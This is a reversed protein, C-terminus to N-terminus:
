TAISFREKNSHFCFFDSLPDFNRDIKVKLYEHLEVELEAVDDMIEDYEPDDNREPIAFGTKLAADIDFAKKFKAIDESMDEFTGGNENTQTLMRMLSSTCQKFIDPLDMVSDFANLLAAFDRIKNKGYTPTEYLIARSNPHDKMNSNGFQHIQALSRQLDVNLSSLLARSGQLMETNEYLEKVAEQRGRIEDVDSTPSCLYEMLLRKGFQTCCYDMKMYLSTEKGFINLNSLTINDLVMSKQRYDKGIKGDLGEFRQDPPIYRKFSALALVQKMLLNRDLYWLCGGLAKLALACDESPKLHEEQMEKIVDPWDKSDNYFTESLYKLTRVGNWLQKENTLPEKLANIAKIIKETHPAKVNREHLVLVPTYHSLLTLLRSCQQDDDFEGLTFDGISTDVFCIGYRSTTSTKKTEAITLLFNPDSSTTMRQQGNSFIQTGRDTIQCIERKMVKSFKGTIGERKCRAEMMAPNETQEVRAVRYGRDVLQTAMKEYASEPFGSHAFENKGMFSFGLEKVGIIADHHYLEYFKGVKFFFICDFHSSKLQWWQSMAPTQKLTFEPPVFITRPDYDPHNPRNKNKDRIQNPQLFSLTEHFWIKNLNDVKLLADKELNEDDEVDDDQAEKVKAPTKKAVKISPSKDHPENDSISRKTAIKQKIEGIKNTDTNECDDEDESAIIRRKKTPKLVVNEDDSSDKASSRKGTSCLYSYEGFKIFM